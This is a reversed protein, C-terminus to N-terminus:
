TLPIWGNTPKMLENEWPAVIRDILHMVHDDDRFVVDTMEIKGKREVYVQDFGNVMIENVTDDALLPTIPGYGAIESVIERVTRLSEACTFTVDTEQLVKDVFSSM